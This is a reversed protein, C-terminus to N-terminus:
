RLAYKIFGKRSTLVVREVGYEMLTAEEFGGPIIALSKGKLSLPL